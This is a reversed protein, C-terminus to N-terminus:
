VQVAEFLTSWSTRCKGWSVARKSRDPVGWAGEGHSRTAMSVRVTLQVMVARLLSGDGQQRVLLGLGERSQQNMGMHTELM